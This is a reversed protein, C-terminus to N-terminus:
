AWNTLSLWCATLKTRGQTSLTLVSSCRQTNCYSLKSVTKMLHGKECNGVASWPWIPLLKSNPSTESSRMPNPFVQPCIQLRIM